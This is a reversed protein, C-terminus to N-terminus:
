VIGKAKLIGLTIVTTIFLVCLVGYTILFVNEENGYKLVRTEPPKPETYECRLCYMKNGSATM